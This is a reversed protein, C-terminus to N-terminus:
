SEGAGALHDFGGARLNSIFGDTRRLRLGADADADIVGVWFLTVGQPPDALLRNAEDPAVTLCLEFDEGDNLAHDLAPRGDLRSAERADDHIPISAADLTAGLNGSEELIHGLDSALGDSIDILAHISAVEALALAETM